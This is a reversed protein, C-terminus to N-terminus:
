HFKGYVLIIYCKYYPIAHYAFCCLSPIVLPLVYSFACLLVHLDLSGQLVQQVDITYVCVQIQTYLLKDYYNNVYPVM